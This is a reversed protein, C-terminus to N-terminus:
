KPTNLVTIIQTPENVGNVDVARYAVTAGLPVVLPATYRRWPEGNLRYEIGAVAVNDTATLTLTSSTASAASQLRTQSPTTDTFDFTRVLTLAALEAQGASSLHFFDLTSVSSPAVPATTVFGGEYRCHIMTACVARIQENYALLRQQVRQRRANDRPHTSTPNVLMAQCTSNRAWADRAQPDTHLAEWLGLVNPNGSVFIRADPLRQSLVAMGAAFQERYDAVSTMYIESPRCVDNGGMLITVYDVTPPLTAAQTALNHMAAGSVAANTVQVMPQWRRIHTAHSPIRSGTSWSAAPHDGHRDANAARTLSDGLAAMHRPYGPLARQPATYASAVWLAIVIRCLMSGRVLAGERGPPTPRSRAYSRLNM